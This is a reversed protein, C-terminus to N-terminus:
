LNFKNINILSQIANNSKDIIHDYLDYISLILQTNGSEEDDAGIVTLGMEIPMFFDKLKARVESMFKEYDDFSYFTDFDCLIRCSHVNKYYEKKITYGSQYITYKSKKFNPMASIKQIILDAIKDVIQVQTDYTYVQKEM